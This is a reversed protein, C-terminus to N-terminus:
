KVLVLRQQLVKNDELEIRLTYIGDAQNSLDIVSTGNQFSIIV